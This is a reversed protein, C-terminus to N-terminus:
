NEIPPDTEDEGAFGAKMMGSGNDIVIPTNNNIIRNGKQKEKQQIALQETTYGSSRAMFTQVVEIDM